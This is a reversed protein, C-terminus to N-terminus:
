IKWRSKQIAKELRGVGQKIRHSTKKLEKDVRKAERTVRRLDQTEQESPRSKPLVTVEIIAEPCDFQDRCKCLGQLYEDYPCFCLIDGESNLNVLAHFKTLPVVIYVM